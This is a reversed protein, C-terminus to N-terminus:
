GGGGIATLKWVMGRVWHQGRSEAVAALKPTLLLSCAAVMQALPLTFNEASRYAAAGSSGAYLGVLPPFFATGLWYLIGVGLLWKGYKWHARLVLPLGVPTSLDHRRFLFLSAAIAALAMIGFGVLPAALRRSAFIAMVVGGFYVMGARAAM